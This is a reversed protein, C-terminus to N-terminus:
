LILYMCQVDIQENSSRGVGLDNKARCFFPRRVKSAEINLVRGTGIFTEQDGDARYWTYNKVPPNADSRCTLTV